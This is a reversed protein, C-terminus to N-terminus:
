SNYYVHLYLNIFKIKNITMEIVLFPLEGRVLIELRNQPQPKGAGPVTDLARCARRFIHEISLHRLSFSLNCCLLRISWKEPGCTLNEFYLSSNKLRKIESWRFWWKGGEIEWDNLLDNNLAQPIGPVAEPAQIGTTFLVSSPWLAWMRTSFGVVLVLYIGEIVYPLSALLSMLCDFLTLLSLSPSLCFPSPSIWNLTLSAGKLLHLQCCLRTIWILLPSPTLLVTAFDWQVTDCCGSCTGDDTRLKRVQYLPFLFQGVSRAFYDRWPWWIVYGLEGPTPTM